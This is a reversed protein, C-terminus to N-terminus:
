FSRGTSIALGFGTGCHEVDAQVENFSVLWARDGNPLTKTAANRTTLCLLSLGNAQGQAAHQVTPAYAGHNDTHQLTANAAWGEPPKAWLRRGPQGFRDAPSDTARADVQVRGEVGFPKIITGAV